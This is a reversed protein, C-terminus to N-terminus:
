FSWSTLYPYSGFGSAGFGSLGFTSPFSGTVPSTFGYSFSSPIGYSMPSTYGYGSTLGFGIPNTVGFGFPSAFGSSWPTSFGSSLPNTFGVGFPSSTLGYGVPSSFGYSVPTGFSYGAQAGYGYGSGTPTGYVPAGYGYGTSAPTGYVPTGYGYGTGTPTGYVPSGYGYGTGPMPTGYGYGYPVTSGSGGTSGTSGTSSQGGPNSSSQPILQGNATAWGALDDILNTLQLPSTKCTLVRFTLEVVSGSAGQAIGTATDLGGVQLTGNSPRSVELLTFGATLTGRAYGVYELASADYSIKFGMSNVPQPANVISVTFTIENGTLPCNQESIMLGGNAALASTTVVMFILAMSVLGGISLLLRTRQKNKM